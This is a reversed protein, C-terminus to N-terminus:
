NNFDMALSFYLLPCTDAAIISGTIGIFLVEPLEKYNLLMELFRDRDENDEFIQQRNIGRLM